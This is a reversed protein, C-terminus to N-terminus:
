RKLAGALMGDLLLHVLHHMVCVVLAVGYQPFLTLQLIVCLPLTKQSGMFLVSERRGPGLGALRILSGAAGLLSVHFVVVLLVVLGLTQHGALITARSQAAAMWVILLVLGQNVGQVLKQHNEVTQRVRGILRLALGALLPLLVLAAMTLMIASRDIRIPGSSLAVASLCLSLVVPVTVVAFSNAMITILLAHAMNGGAAATMVVGSSLTCPMVAVLLLGICIGPPLSFHCLAVALLPSFIFIVVLALATGTLDKLGARLLRGELLLGSFFFILIIVMDPGHRAKLWRGCAAATATTDVLVAAFIVLLGLAFWQQRLFEKM